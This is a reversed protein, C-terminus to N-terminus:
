RAASTLTGSLRMNGRVGAREECAPLPRARMRFSTPPPLQTGEGRKVPLPAHRRLREFRRLQDFLPRVFPEIRPPELGIQPTPQLAGFSRQRDPLEKAALGVERIQQIE